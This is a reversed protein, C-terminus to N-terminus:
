EIDVICVGNQKKERCDNAEQFKSTESYFSLRLCEDAIGTNNENIIFVRGAASQINRKPNGTSPIFEKARLSNAPATKNRRIKASQSRRLEDQKQLQHKVIQLASRPREQQESYNNVFYIEPFTISSSSNTRTVDNATEEPNLYFPLLEATNKIPDNTKSMYESLTEIADPDNKPSSATQREVRIRAIKEVLEQKDKIEQEVIDLEVRLNLQQYHKDIYNVIWEYGERIGPDTKTYNTESACCSQVLTPCKYKNVMEEIQLCEIIDIEDLASEQDQKNALILLPKGTIKENSLIEELVQRVEQFRGMDCSDIVFIIGHVDTFYKHWIGRINSGGGLDFIKVDYHLYKLDIVSFGVTPVPSYIPDGALGRATVTKGANDLGVLLLALRQRRKLRSEQCCNNGM